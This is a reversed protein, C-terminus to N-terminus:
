APRRFVLSNAAFWPAPVRNAQFAQRLRETAASDHEAGAQQFRTIWHEPPQENVHGRGGQGPQAASFVVRPAIRALLAVLRDALEPDLHEAVEFCIALDFARAEGLPLERRLDFDEARVGQRRAAWRGARSREFATVPLGAREVGAAIAGSGAGIDAVRSAAPFVDAISRGVPDANPKALQHFAWLQAPSYTLWEIGLREGLRGGTTALRWLARHGISPRTRSARPVAEV